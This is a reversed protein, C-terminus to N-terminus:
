YNWIKQGLILMLKKRLDGLRATALAEQEGAGLNDTSM